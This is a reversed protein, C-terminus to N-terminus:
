GSSKGPVDISAMRALDDRDHGGVRRHGYRKMPMNSDELAASM